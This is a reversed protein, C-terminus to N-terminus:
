FKLSLQPHAVRHSWARDAGSVSSEVYNGLSFPAMRSASGSPKLGYTAGLEIEWTDFGNMNPDGGGEVDDTLPVSDIDYRLQVAALPGRLNVPHSGGIMQKDSEISAPEFSLSSAAASFENSRLEQTEEYAIRFGRGFNAADLLNPVWDEAVGLQIDFSPQVNSEAFNTGFPSDAAGASNIAACVMVTAALLPHSFWTLTMPRKM